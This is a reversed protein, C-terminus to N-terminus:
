RSAACGTHQTLLLIGHAPRRMFFCVIVHLLQTAFFSYEQFIWERLPKILIKYCMNRSLDVSIASFHNSFFLRYDPFFQQCVSVGPSYYLLIHLSLNWAHIHNTGMHHMPASMNILKDSTNVDSSM